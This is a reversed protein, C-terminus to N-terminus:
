GSSFWTDLVDQDRVLDKGGAKERAEQESRAVYVNGEGDYWAPIQHGWWLQRSITWDKLNELWATYVKEHPVRPFFHPVGEAAMMELAIDRMGDMKVFWQESLIPEVITKCRECVPLSIEHDEVKELLGLESFRSIVKERAEFRDLGSFDSGAADNMRGAEDMVLIQALGHREGVAHDNPDHAPTIKVAGTGFETDVYEDAIIPIERGTLPLEIVKGILGAYREDNPNVAVATDGLMTEPRTTAVVIFTGQERDNGNRVPYRLHYLKGDKKAEEKVELDSLVTRDKPCWNVIRLGRYISGEEYLSVFVSRVASSLDDDMTFRERSWDVSAGERRMQETITNGYEAKWRWARRIFEDRGIDIPSLGEDKRLQEVVKRQVSIGAHDTGPLWLTRFGQMRKRRTLVDMITHQLAHGMHLSGTVNPPPIVISYTEANPDGNIEPKFFGNEEWRKYHHTEATKPDYAKALEM